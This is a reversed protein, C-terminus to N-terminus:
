YAAHPHALFPIWLYDHTQEKRKSNKNNNNNNNKKKQSADPQSTYQQQPSSSPLQNPFALETLSSNPSAV